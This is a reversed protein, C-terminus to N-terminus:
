GRRDGASRALRTGVGRLAAVIPLVRDRDASAYSIFVYPSEPDFVAETGESTRGGLSTSAAPAPSENGAHTFRAAAALADRQEASLALAEELRRLIDPYPRRTGHELYLLGRVSLEARKALEEQTLGTRVRYQKLLAGFTGANGAMM